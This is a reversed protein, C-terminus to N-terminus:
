HYHPIYIHKIQDTRIAMNFVKNMEESIVLATGPTIEEFIIPDELASNHAVSDIFGVFIYDGNMGDYVITLNQHAKGCTEERYFNPSYKEIIESFAERTNIESLLVKELNDSVELKFVNVIHKQFQLM